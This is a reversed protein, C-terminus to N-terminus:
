FFHAAFVHVIAAVVLLIFLPLHFVHWLGFLREYFGLAAARKVTLVYLSIHDEVLALQGRQVRRPWGLRRGHSAIMARAERMLRARLAIAHWNVVPLLFLGSLIGKPGTIGRQAFANLEAVARNGFALDNGVIQKLVDADALIERVEAKRGYLGVHIKGYLYRGVIGSASVILMATLAVNSNISGLRFNSHLLILVPGVIGLVMHTRFWFAVSGFVRTMRIRKRLPYLLLLIMLSSGAIGLWYGSGSKPTLGSDDREFWGICLVAIVVIGFTLPVVGGWRKPRAKLRTREGPGASAGRPPLRTTGHAIPSESIASDTM